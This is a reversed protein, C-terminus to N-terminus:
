SGLDAKLDSKGKIVHSKNIHGGRGSACILESDSESQGGARMSRDTTYFISWRGRTKLFTHHPTPLAWQQKYLKAIIHAVEIDAFKM